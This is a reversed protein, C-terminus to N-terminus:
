QLICRYIDCITSLILAVLFLFSIYDLLCPQLTCACSKQIAGTFLWDIQACGMLNFVCLNTPCFHLACWFQQGYIPTNRIFAACLRRHRTPPFRVISICKGNANNTRHLTRRHRHRVLRGSISHYCNGFALCNFSTYPECSVLLIFISICNCSISDLGRERHTHTHTNVILRQM